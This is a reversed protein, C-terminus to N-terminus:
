LQKDLVPLFLRAFLIKVQINQVLSMAHNQMANRHETTRTPNLRINTHHTQSVQYRSTCNQSLGLNRRFERERESRVVDLHVEHFVHVFRQILAFNGDHLARSSGHTAQENGSVGPTHM